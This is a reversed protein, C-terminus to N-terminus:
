PLDELLQKLNIRTEGSLLRPLLADRLAALTASEAGNAQQKEFFPSVSKDFADLTESAPIPLEFKKSFLTFAFNKIGTTGNEFPLFEDNGYLWRLWLYAFKSINRSKLKLVRCFNSCVLPHDLRRLLSDSVLVARGTSQTPSGGSIEVVLDGERLQRKELSGPKLYRIPMKGVGFRQLDPIDAGRICFAPQTAEDTPQESGWDGGVVDSTLDSLVGSRWGNSLAAHTADVFWSKFLAQAMTELTENMRRNLEIKDDLAALVQAITRQEKLPPLFIPLRRLIGENLNPMVAGVAHAKLWSVVIDSSFLFSLFTADVDATELRMLIAGTGCLWGEHKSEVLASLGTAQVGRRAFLIDGAKLKHRALRNVVTESVRPIADDRIRRRGIAETPVVPVGAAQYDYSHLQSGFPGTQIMAQGRDCLEGLTTNLWSNDM